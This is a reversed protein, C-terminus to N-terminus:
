DILFKVTPEILKKSKFISISSKFSRPPKVTNFCKSSKISKASKKFDNSFVNTEM